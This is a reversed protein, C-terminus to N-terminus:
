GVITGYVDNLPYSLLEIREGDPGPFYASTGDVILVDIDAAQVKAVLRDFQEPTVSIAVHHLGGLVEEYPGVDLGPFAFYAPYNENGIDFFFHISGRYDRNKFLEALPFELVDPFVHDDVGRQEVRDRLPPAGPGGIPAAGRSTALLPRATRGM